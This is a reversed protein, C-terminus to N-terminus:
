SLPAKQKTDLLRLLEDQSFGGLAPELSDAHTAVLARRAAGYARQASVHDGGGELALGLHLQAIADDPSVYTLKRFAVVAARQDGAVMADEGERALQHILGASADTPAPLTPASPSPGTARRSTTPAPVAVRARPAPASRTDSGLRLGALRDLATAAAPAGKSRPRYVFTDDFRAADFRDSIPWVTEASGLFLYGGSPLTEFVRELFTRAHQASFYILVNRCFVVQCSQAPMPPASLLNHQVISVRHRLAENIEWGASTRTLHRAIRESSLGLLERTSYRAAATRQLAQTSVDTAIVRTDLGLEETIMALSFAEQGNACGASWITVPPRLAPLVARALVEFHEPHRFFGTEQVTVRNLLAQFADEHQGLTDLCTGLDQGRAAAEDRLCRRLRGRFTPEPRLGIRRHLLEAVQDLAAEDLLSHTM